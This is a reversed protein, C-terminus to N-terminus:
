ALCTGPASVDRLKVKFVKSKSEGIEIPVLSDEIILNRIESPM